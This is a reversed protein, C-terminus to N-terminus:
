FRGAWGIYASDRSVVAVPHTAPPSRFWLLYAGLGGVVVGGIALGVGAPGTNHITAPESPVPDQDIAILVAGTAILAGGGVLLALPALRSPPAPHDEVPQPVLEMALVDTHDSVVVLESSASRLGRKDMTIIHKGAPIDWDLPTVGIDHGDVSIRAGSPNSRFKIHGDGSGVLKRMLDDTTTRLAQENCRQCITREAVADHGKDFWYATLTLDHTGGGGTSRDVRDVRDIRDIRDVRAYVMSSSKARREVVTRACTPDEAVFCDILASIADPPLPSPVLRHGHQSLWDEIHAELQPQMSGEGTVIVGVDGDARAPSGLAAVAALALPLALRM